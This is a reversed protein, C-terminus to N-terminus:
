KKRRKGQKAGAKPKALLRKAARGVQGSVYNEFGCPVLENLPVRGYKETVAAVVGDAAADLKAAAVAKPAPGGKELAAALRWLRIAERVKARDPSLVTETSKDTELSARDSRMKEVSDREARAAAWDLWLASGEDKAPEAEAVLPVPGFRYAREADSYPPVPPQAYLRANAGAILTGMAGDMIRSAKKDYACAWTRVPGLGAVHKELEQGTLYARNRFAADDPYQRWRSGFRLSGAKSRMVLRLSTEIGAADAKAPLGAARQRAFAEKVDAQAKAAAVGDGVGDEAQNVAGPRTGTIGGREAVAVGQGSSFGATGLFLATLFLLQKM